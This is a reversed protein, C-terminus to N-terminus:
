AKATPAEMPGIPRLGTKTVFVRAFTTGKFVPRASGFRLRGRRPRDRLREAHHARWLPAGIPARVLEPDGYRLDGHPRRPEIREEVRRHRRDPRQDTRDRPEIMGRDLPRHRHGRHHALRVATREPGKAPAQGMLVAPVGRELRPPQEVPLALGLKLEDGLRVDIM